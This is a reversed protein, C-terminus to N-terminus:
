AVGHAVRLATVRGLEASDPMAGAAELKAEVVMDTLREVECRARALAANTAQVEDILAMATLVLRRKGDTDGSFVSLRAELTKALDELRRQQEPACALTIEEGLVTIKTHM